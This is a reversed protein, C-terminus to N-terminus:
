FHIYIVKKVSKKKSHVTRVCEAERKMRVISGFIQTITFFVTFLAWECLDLKHWDLSLEVNRCMIVKIKIKIIMSTLTFSCIALFSRTHHIQM